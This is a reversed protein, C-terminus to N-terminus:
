IREPRSILRAQLIQMPPPSDKGERYSDRRMVAFAAKVGQGKTAQSIEHVRLYLCFSLSLQLTFIYIQIVTEEAIKIM